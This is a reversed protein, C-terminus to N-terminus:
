SGDGYAAGGDLGRLCVGGRGCENRGFHTEFEGHLCQLASVNLSSRMQLRHRADTLRPPIIAPFYPPRPIPKFSPPPRMCLRTTFRRRHNHSYPCPSCAAMRSPFLTLTFSNRMLRLFNTVFAPSPVAHPYPDHGDGENRTKSTQPPIFTSHRMTM